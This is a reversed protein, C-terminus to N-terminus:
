ATIIERMGALIGEAGEKGSFHINQPHKQYMRQCLRKIADIANGICVFNAGKQALHVLTIDNEADGATVMNEYKIGLNKSLYKVGDAKLMPQFSLDIMAGDPKRRTVNSQLLISESCRDMVPKPYDSRIVKAKIGQKALEQRIAQELKRVNTGNAVFIKNSFETPNWTYPTFVSDYFDPDGAKIDEFNPLSQLQALKREPLKFKGSKGMEKLIEAVKASDYHSKERVLTEYERDKVWNGGVNEYIYSGDHLILYKPEPILEQPKTKALKDLYEELSNGSVIVLEADTRRQLDVIDHRIQPTMKRALSYDYDLFFGSRFKPTKLGYFNPANNKYQASQKFLHLKM